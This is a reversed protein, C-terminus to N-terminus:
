DEYRPGDDEEEEVEEGAREAKVAGQEARVVQRKVQGGARDQGRAQSVGAGAGAGGGERKRKEGAVAVAAAAAKAREVVAREEEAKAHQRAKYGARIKGAHAILDGESVADRISQEVSRVTSIHNSETKDDRFRPTPLPSDEQQSPYVISDLKPRWHGTSPERYCELIRGDLPQQLRKLAHWEAPLLSLMAYYKYGEGQRDGHNIQLELEPLADWDEYQEGSDEDTILPFSRIELRFDVTNEHPPKWKLIKEDTGAHYETGVCTFILGDNGHPLAPIKEHFMMGAAYPFEMVKMEIDFPQAAADSPYRETFKRYPRWLSQQLRVLRKDLTKRMISENDLALLDFMLYTLRPRPHDRRTQLVLEGDLLTGTHFRHLDFPVTTTAPDPAREPPPPIHLTGGPIFYYDNKRDILFQAEHVGAQDVYQTLYLLCRIGDTKECMFYDHRQLEDIHHRAFSVPQAGPFNTNKRDLLDAVWNRQDTLEGGTLKTGVDALNISSGM